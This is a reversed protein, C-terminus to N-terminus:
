NRYKNKLKKGKGKKVNLRLNNKGVKQSLYKVWKNKWREHIFANLTICKGWQIGKPMGWLHQYTTSKCGKRELKKLIGM